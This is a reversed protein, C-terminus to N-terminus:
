AIDKKFVQGEKFGKCPKKHRNWDAKQCAPSCYFVCKCNSCSKLDSITFLQGPCKYNGCCMHGKGRLRLERAEVLRGQAERLQAVSDRTVAADLRPGVGMGGFEKDDRIRLAKGLAVEAEDLKGLFMLNDGLGNFSIGAQLSDEGYAELKLALAQRHLQVAGAYDGGRSAMVAQNSYEIATTNAEVLSDVKAKSMKTPDIFNFHAAFDM